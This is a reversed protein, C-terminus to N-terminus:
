NKKAIMVSLKGGLISLPQEVNVEVIQNVAAVFKNIINKALDTHQRERGRLLMELKVKDDQNLFKAAQNVRVETDHESIRLSLRIGKIEVKKQKAREKRREKEEQYRMKSYDVIKAVPPNALPNVEILDLGRDQAM